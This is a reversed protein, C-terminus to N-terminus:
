RFSRVFKKANRGATLRLDALGLESVRGRRVKVVIRASRGFALYWSDRGVRYRREGRLRRRVTRLRSGRQLGRLLHRASSSLALVARDGVRRREGRSLGGLLGGTPYGVRVGGGGVICFRDIRRTTRNLSHRPYARRNSRRRRGLRARDVRKGA